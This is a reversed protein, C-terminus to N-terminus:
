ARARSGPAPAQLGMLLLDIHQEIFGRADLLSAVPTCV